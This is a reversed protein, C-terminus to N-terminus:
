CKEEGKQVLIRNGEVQIIKVTEGKPLYEGSTVVSYQRENVTIIGAPRLPSFVVGEQGLLGQHLDPSDLSLNKRPDGGLIIRKGFFSRPFRRFYFIIIAPTLILVALLVVLGAVEGFTQYTIVVSGILSGVGLAGIIGASPIFFELIVAGIGLFFLGLIIGM